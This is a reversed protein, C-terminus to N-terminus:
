QTVSLLGTRGDRGDVRGDDSGGDINVTLSAVSDVGFLCEFQEDDQESAAGGGREGGQVRGRLRVVDLEVRRFKKTAMGAIARWISSLVDL